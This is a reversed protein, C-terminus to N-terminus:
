WLKNTGKNFSVFVIEDVGLSGGIMWQCHTVPKPETAAPEPSEPPLKPPTDVLIPAPQVSESDELEAEEHVNESHQLTKLEHMLARVDIFNANENSVEVQQKTALKKIHTGSALTLGTRLITVVLNEPLGINKLGKCLISINQYFTNSSVLMGRKERVIDLFEHQTVITGIREILLLLCRGAPSNLLVVHEPNNIDRLTGTAPIFEVVGNIIYYNHM